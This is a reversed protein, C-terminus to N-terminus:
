ALEAVLEGVGDADPGSRSALILNRVGHETVLHRAVERGLGGTGGTVLVTGEPDWVVASTDPDAAATSARVLRPVTIAGARVDSQPEGSAVVQRLAAVSAVTNDLNVLGFRGPHETQASRVLGWVS